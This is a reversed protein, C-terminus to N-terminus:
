AVAFETYQRMDPDHFALVIDDKPVGAEILASAIGEETWDEEIWFKGNRLRVFLTAGRVRGQPSWGVSFLIYNDRETDFVLETELGPTPTQELQEAQETLLRQILTRYETRRDM